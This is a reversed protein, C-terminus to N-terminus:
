PSEDDQQEQEKELQESSTEPQQGKDEKQQEQEQELKESTEPEQGKDEKQQEQEQGEEVSGFVAVTVTDTDKGGKGDNVTLEFKFNTDKEVEPAKFTAITNKAGDLSVSPSGPSVQEWLYSLDQNADPDNSGEGNLKVIKGSEVSSDEGADATPPNNEEAPQQGQTEPAARASEASPSSPSTTTNEGPTITSTILLCDEDAADVKVDNDNDIGDDCITESKESSTPFRTLNQLTTNGASFIQASGGSDDLTITCSKIEGPLIITINGGLGALGGCDGSRSITHASQRTPVLVFYPTNAPLTFNTGEESGKFLQQIQGLKLLIFVDSSELTSNTNDNIVHTKVSLTGTSVPQSGNTPQAQHIDDFFVFCTRTDGTNLVQPGPCGRIAFSYNGLFNAISPGPSVNITYSGPAVSFTDSSGNLAPIQSIVVGGLSTRSTGNNGIVDVTAGFDEPQVSVGDNNNVRTNIVLTANTQNGIVPTSPPSLLGDDAVIDNNIITCTKTQNEVVLVDICDGQLTTTYGPDSRPDITYLFQAMNFTRGDPPPDGSVGSFLITPTVIDSRFDRATKNGGNDNIVETVVKAKVLGPLRDQFKVTCVKPPEGAALTVRARSDCDGEFTIGYNSLPSGVVMYMSPALDFLSGDPAPAAPVPGAALGSRIANVSTTANANLIRISFDEVTKNGGNDNIVETIVKLQAPEVDNIIITCIKATGDAVLTVRGTSDCDGEFATGYNGLSSGVIIYTGPRKDLITGHPPPVAPILGPTFTESADVIFIRFDESRKNGGNNNIVQTFVRLEAGAVDDNIVTCNKTQNEVVLVDTCDGELATTYGSVASPIITYSDSPTVFTEGVPPPAGRFGSTLLGARNIGFRFDSATKNGGNDNIVDTVVNVAGRLKDDFKVTCSKPPEDALLTVKGTSDCDGEFTAIYDFGTVGDLDYTGLALDYIRVNRAPAAPSLASFGVSDERSNYIRIGLDDATKTGGSDNIVEKVISLQGGVVDNNVITCTKTQNEIVAVNTCDGEFTTTYGPVADQQVTFPRDFLIPFTVGDPPGNGSLTITPFEPTVIDFRFDTENGGNDNIVDTVVKVFGPIRDNLKVTCSKGPGDAVLTVRGTSNCDGEFTIGYEVLPLELVGYTGPALDFITGHPAPAAPLPGAVKLTADENIIFVSFNGAVNTGGSDNIVETIVRLQATENTDTSTPPEPPAVPEEEPPQSPSTFNRIIPPPRTTNGTETRNIIPSTDNTIPPQLENLNDELFLPSPPQLETFNEQFIPAEEDTTPPSPPQFIPMDREDFEDRIIIKTSRDQDQGNSSTPEFAPESGTLTTINGTTIQKVLQSISQAISQSAGLGGTIQLQALQVISRSLPGLPNQNVQNAIFLLPQFSLVDQPQLSVQIILQQIAQAIAHSSITVNNVSLKSSNAALKNAVQNLLQNAGLASQFAQQMILQSVNATIDTQNTDIAQGTQQGILSALQTLGVINGAAFQKAFLLLAQSLPGTPNAATEISLHTIIQDPNSTEVVIREIVQALATIISTAAPPSPITVNGVFDPNANVIRSATQNILRKQETSLETDVTQATAIIPETYYNQIAPIVSLALSVFLFIAVSGRLL